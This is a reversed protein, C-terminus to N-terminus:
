KKVMDKYVNQRVVYEGNIKHLSNANMMHKLPKKGLDNAIQQLQSKTYPQIAENGIIM